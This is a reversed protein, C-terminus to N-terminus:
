KVSEPYSREMPIRVCTSAWIICGPSITRLAFSRPSMTRLSGFSVTYTSVSSFNSVVMLHPRETNLKTADVQSSKGTMGSTLAVCVMEIGSFM